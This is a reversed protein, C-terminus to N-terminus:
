FGHCRWDVDQTKRSFIPDFISGEARGDIGLGSVRIALCLYNGARTREYGIYEHALREDIVLASTAIHISSGSTLGIAEAANTVLYM